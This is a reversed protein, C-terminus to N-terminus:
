LVTRSVRAEYPAYGAEPKTQATEIQEACRCAVRLNGLHDKIDYEYRWYKNTTDPATPYPPDFKAGNQKVTNPPLVRGEPTAVFEVENNKFVVSGIYDFTGAPSVMRNKQGTATYTYSNGKATKVLNLYNYTLSIDKNADTIMNGADDYTFDTADTSNETFFEETAQNNNEGSDDVKLLRNTNAYYDYVLRDKYQGQWWRELTKINGNADYSMNDLKYIINDVTGKSLKSWSLRNQADYEYNDYFIDNQKVAFPDTHKGKRQAFRYTQKNINGVEDYALSMGFFSKSAELNAPNNLAIMRSRLDYKYSLVQLKCGLTKQTMEGIGNYAYRGVPQWLETNVKQCVSKIKSSREYSFTQEVTTTMGNVVIQRSRLVRGVFDMKKIDYIFGAAVHSQSATEFVRGYDDYYPTSIVETRGASGEIKTITTTVKGKLYSSNYSSPFQNEGRFAIANSPYTDYKTQTKWTKGGGAADTLGSEVVRNLGNPDYDNYMWDGRSNKQKLSNKIPYFNDTQIQRPRRTWGSM